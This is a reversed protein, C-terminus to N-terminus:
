CNIAKFLIDPKKQATATIIIKDFPAFEPWGLKGDGIKYHINHYGLKKLTTQNKLSLKEHIEITYVEKVLQALLATQFGSGTGIELVRDAPRLELREMMYVVLSPQSILKVVILQYLIIEMLKM